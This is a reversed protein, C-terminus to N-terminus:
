ALGAVLEGFTCHVSAGEAHHRAAIRLDDATRRECVIHDAYAAACPLFVLDVLDHPDWAGGGRFRRYFVERSRGLYPLTAFDEEARTVLWTKFEEVPLGVSAAAAGLHLRLEELMWGFTVTRAQARARTDSALKQGAQQHAQAWQLARMEGEPPSLADNELLGAFIACAGPVVDAWGNLPPPLDNQLRPMPEAYLAQYDLTFVPEAAFASDRGDLQTLLGVLEDMRVRLPERMIWGRSLGVMSAALRERRAGYTPGTEIWHGASVPLIVKRDTALEVLQRTPPLDVPNVLHPAHISQALQIWKNQDLYVVPRGERRAVQDDFQFIETELEEDWPTVLVVTADVVRHTIRKFPPPSEGPETRGSWPHRVTEGETKVVRIEHNELDLTMEAIGDLPSLYM